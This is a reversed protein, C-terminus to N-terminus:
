PRMERCMPTNAVEDIYLQHAAADPGVTGASTLSMSGACSRCRARGAAPLDTLHTLADALETDSELCGSSLQTCAVATEPNTEFVGRLVEATPRARAARGVSFLVTEAGVVRTLESAFKREDSIGGLSGHHPFVLVDASLDTGKALLEDLAVQDMDGPLLIRSGADLTVRLVASVTNSKIPSGSATKGTPGTMALAFTPALVEVEVGAGSLLESNVADDIDRSVRCRGSRKADDLAALLNATEPASPNKGADAGIYIAGIELTELSLLPVLGRAHDFDRHSIVIADLRTLALQIVTQIVAASAGADIMIAWGDDVVLACNGHGVDIVHLEATV